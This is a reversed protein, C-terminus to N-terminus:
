YTFFFLVSGLLLGLGLVRQIAVIHAQCKHQCYETGHGCRPSLILLRDGGGLLSCGGGRWYVKLFPTGMYIYINLIYMYM